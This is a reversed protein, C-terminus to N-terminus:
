FASYFVSGYFALDAGTKTPKAKSLEMVQNSSSGINDDGTEHLLQSASPIQWSADIM